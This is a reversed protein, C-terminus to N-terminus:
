NVIFAVIEMHPARTIVHYRVSCPIIENVSLCSYVLNARSITVVESISTWIGIKDKGSGSHVKYVPLIAIVHYMALIAIIINHTAAASIGDISTQTTVDIGLLAATQGAHTWRDHASAAVVYQM